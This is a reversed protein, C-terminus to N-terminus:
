KRKFIQRHTKKSVENLKKNNNPNSKINKKLELNNFNNNQSLMNLQM